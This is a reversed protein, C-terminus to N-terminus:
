YEWNGTSWLIEEPSLRKNLLGVAEVAIREGM